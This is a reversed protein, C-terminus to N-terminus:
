LPLLETCGYSAFYPAPDIELQALIQNFEEPFTTITAILISSIGLVSTVGGLFNGFDGLPIAVLLNVLTDLLSSNNIYNLVIDPVVARFLLMYLLVVSNPIGVFYTSLYTQAQNFISVGLAFLSLSEGAAGLMYSLVGTDALFLSYGCESNQQPSLKSVEFLDM